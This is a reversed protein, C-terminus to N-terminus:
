SELTQNSLAGFKTPTTGVDISRSPLPPSLVRLNNDNELDRVVADISTTFGLREFVNTTESIQRQPNVAGQLRFSQDIDDINIQQKEKSRIKKM